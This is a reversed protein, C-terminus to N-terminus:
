PDVRLDEREAWPIIHSAVLLRGDPLGCICCRTSYSALVVQRFFEQGLRVRLIRQTETGSTRRRGAPDDTPRDEEIVEADQGRLRRYAQESEPGLQSWNGHFENWINTDARSSNALGSVGRRQHLPDLSAFNVLKMAVAGPTRGLLGALEAVDPNGRHMQGFPLKCYLNFAVILEDRTWNRRAM